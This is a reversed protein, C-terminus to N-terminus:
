DKTGFVSDLIVEKTKWILAMTMALPLILLPVLAFINFRSILDHLLILWLPIKALHPVLYYVASLGTMAILLGRNLATFQRAEHRLTEDPLMASLRLLVFNLNYLFLLGSVAMLAVSWFFLPQDPLRNRFYLFPCLGLNVLALLKARDLALRWPREQKQFDGMLMLGYLLLGLAFMAPLLSNVRSLELRSSAIFCLILASPLGWFVASLGRALKGLSRLLEPNSPAEAM